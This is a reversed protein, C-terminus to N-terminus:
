SKTVSVRCLDNCKVARAAARTLDIIRGRIFPGRDTIRVSVSLHTSTNTVVVQTGCPLTKHAATLASDQLSQRPCAVRRGNEKTTYISAIGTEAQAVSLTFCLCAATLIKALM